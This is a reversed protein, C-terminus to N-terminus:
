RGSARRRGSAATRSARSDVALHGPAIAAKSRTDGLEVTRQDLLQVRAREARHQHAARQLDFGALIRRRLSEGPMGGFEERRQALGAGVHQGARTLGRRHVRPQLLQHGGRAAGACGFAEIVVAVRQAVIKDAVEVAGLAAFAFTGFAGLAVAVALGILVHLHFDRALLGLAAAAARETGLFNALQELLTRLDFGGLALAAGLALPHIEGLERALLRLVELFQALLEALDARGGIVPPQHQHVPAVLIGVVGVVFPVVHQRIIPAFPAPQALNREGAVVAIEESLRQRAVGLHQRLHAAM